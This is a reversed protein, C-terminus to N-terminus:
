GCITKLRLIVCDGINGSPRAELLYNYNLMSM